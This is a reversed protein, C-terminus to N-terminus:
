LACSRQGTLETPLAASQFDAHGHNSEAVPWWNELAAGEPAAKTEPSGMTFCVAIGAAAAARAHEVFPRWYARKEETKETVLKEAAVLTRYDAEIYDALKSLAEDPIGKKHNYAKSLDPQSVGLYRALASISGAKRAGIAIFERLEM